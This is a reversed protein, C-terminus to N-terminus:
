LKRKSKGQQLWEYVQENLQKDLTEDEFLEQALKM